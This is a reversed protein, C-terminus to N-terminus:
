EEGKIETEEERDRDLPLPKAEELREKTWYSFTDKAIGDPCQEGKPDESIKEPAKQKKKSM